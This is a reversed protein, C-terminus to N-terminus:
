DHRFKRAEYSLRVYPFRGSQAVYTTDGDRLIIEAYEINRAAAFEPGALSKPNQDFWLFLEYSRTTSEPDTLHILYYKPGPQKLVRASIVIGPLHRGLIGIKTMVEGQTMPYELDCLTAIARDVEAQSLYLSPEKSEASAFGVLVFMLLFVRIKM